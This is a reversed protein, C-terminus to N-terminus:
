KEEEQGRICNGTREDRRGSKSRKDHKRSGRGRSRGYCTGHRILSIVALIVDVAIAIGIAFAGAKIVRGRNQEDQNLQDVYSSVTTQQPAPPRMDVTSEDDNILPRPAYEHESRHAGTREREAMSAGTTDSQDSIDSEGSIDASDLSAADDPDTSSEGSSAGASSSQDDPRAQQQAGGRRIGGRRAGGGDPNDPDVGGGGGSAYDDDHQRLKSPTGEVVVKESSGNDDVDAPRDMAKAIIDDFMDEGYFADPNQEDPSSAANNSAM